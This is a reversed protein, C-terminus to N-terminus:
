PFHVKFDLVPIMGSLFTVYVEILQFRVYMRQLANGGQSEFLPSCSYSTSISITIVQDHDPTMPYNAGGIIPVGAGFIRPNKAGGNWIEPPIKPM